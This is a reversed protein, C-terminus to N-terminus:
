RERAEQCPDTVDAGHGGLLWGVLPLGAGLVVAHAVDFHGLVGQPARLRLPRHLVERDAAGGQLGRVDHRHGPHLLGCRPDVGLEPDDVLLLGLGDTCAGVLDDAACVVVGERDVDELGPRAGAGVHVDVLHEGRQGLPAADLAVRVVVHVGALRAVVGERGRDVDGRHLRGPCLQDRREVLERDDSSALASSNLATTLDPRVCRISAVGTISPWSNPPYAAMM